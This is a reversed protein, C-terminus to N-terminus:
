EGMEMTHVAMEDPSDAIGQWYLWRELVHAKRADDWMETRYIAARPNRRVRGAIEMTLPGTTFSPPVADLVPGNATMSLTAFDSFDRKPRLSDFTMFHEHERRMFDRKKKLRDPREHLGSVAFESARGYILVYQPLLQRDNYEGRLYTKRFISQNESESFWVKWDTLQDLAHTLDATPRGAQTFWAKGPKEIEICIPTILATARTIWMFDPRKNRALGELPPERFVAELEPGHHGGPGVDGLGGPLLVPHAELFKQVASEPPNSDLLKRWRSLLWEKYMGWAIPQPRDARLDPRYEKM